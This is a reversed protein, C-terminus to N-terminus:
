FKAYKNVLKVIENLNDQTLNPHIPITVINSGANETVPLKTKNNYLKITHIAKYISCYDLIYILNIIKSLIASFIDGIVGSERIGAFVIHNIGNFDVLEQNSDFSKRIIEFWKNYDSNILHM